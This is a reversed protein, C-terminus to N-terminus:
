KVQWAYVKRPRVERKLENGKADRLIYLMNVSDNPISYEYWMQTVTLEAMESSEYNAEFNEQFAQAYM